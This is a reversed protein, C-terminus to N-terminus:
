GGTQEASARISGSGAAAADGFVDSQGRSSGNSQGIICDGDLSVTGGFFVTDNGNCVAAGIGDCSGKRVSPNKYISRLLDDRKYQLM